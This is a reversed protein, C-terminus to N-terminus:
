TIKLTTLIEKHIFFELAHRDPSEKEAVLNIYKIKKVLPCIFFLEIVVLYQHYQEMATPKNM